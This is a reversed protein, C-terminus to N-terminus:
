VYLRVLPLPVYSVSLCCAVTSDCPSIYPPTMTVISLNPLWASISINTIMSTCLIYRLFQPPVSITGWVQWFSMCYLWLCLWIAAEFILIECTWIRHKWYKLAPSMMIKSLTKSGVSMLVRFHGLSPPNGMLMTVSHPLCKVSKRKQQIIKAATIQSM